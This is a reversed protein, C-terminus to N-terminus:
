SVQHLHTYFFRQPTLPGKVSFLSCPFLHPFPVSPQARVVSHGGENNYDYWMSVLWKARWTWELWHDSMMNIGDELVQDIGIDEIGIRNLDIDLCKKLATLLM